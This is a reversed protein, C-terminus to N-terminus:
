QVRGNAIASKLGLTENVLVRIREKIKKNKLELSGEFFDDDDVFVARPNTIVKFYNMLAQAQGLVQLFSIRGSGKLLIGAVAGELKKYDVFEFLNKLASSMCGNYVPSGIIFVDSTELARVIKKTAEDYDVELGEFPRVRDRRADIYTIEQTLGKAYDFAMDTLARTYSNERPSACIITVKM